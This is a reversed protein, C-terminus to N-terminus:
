FSDIEKEYNVGCKKSKTLIFVKFFNACRWDEATILPANFLKRCDKHHLNYEFARHISIKPSDYGIWAAFKALNCSKLLILDDKVYDTLMKEDFWWMPTNDTMHCTFKDGFLNKYNPDVTNFIGGTRWLEKDPTIIIIRGKHTLSKIMGNLLTHFSHKDSCAYEIANSCTIVDYQKKLNQWTIEATFDGKINSKTYDDIGVYDTCEMKKWVDCDKSQGCGVDLVNYPVLNFWDALRLDVSFEYYISARICALFDDEIDLTHESFYLKILKKDFEITEDPKTWQKRGSAKHFYYTKGHTKSVLTEWGEM